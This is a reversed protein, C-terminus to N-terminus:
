SRECLPGASDEFARVTAEVADRDTHASARGGSRALEAAVKAGAADDRDFIAVLAGEECLRAAIARGIGSAAGTVIVTKGDLGRFGTSTQM